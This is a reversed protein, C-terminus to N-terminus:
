LNGVSIGARARKLADVIAQLEQCHTEVMILRTWDSSLVGEM